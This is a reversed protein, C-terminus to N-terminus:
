RRETSDWSALWLKEGAPATVAVGSALTLDLNGGEETQYVNFNKTTGDNQSIGSIQTTPAAVTFNNDDDLRIHTLADAKTSILSADHTGGSYTLTPTATITSTLFGQAVGGGATTTLKVCFGVDNNTADANTFQVAASTAAAPESSGAVIGLNGGTVVLNVTLPNASDWDRNLRVIGCQKVNTGLQHQYLTKRDATIYVDQGGSWSGTAQGAGSNADVDAAAGFYVKIANIDADVIEVDQTLTSIAPEPISVTFGPANWATPVDIESYIRSQEGDNNTKSALDLTFVMKMPSTNAPLTYSPGSANFTVGTTSEAAVFGIRSSPLFTDDQDAFYLEETFPNALEAGTFTIEYKGQVYTQSSDGGAETIPTITRGTMTMNDDSKITVSITRKALIKFPKGGVTAVLGGTWVRLPGIVLDFTEDGELLNDDNIGFYLTNADKANGAGTARNFNLVLGTSTAVTAGPFGKVNSMETLDTLGDVGATTILGCRGGFLRDRDARKFREYYFGFPQYRRAPKRDQTSLDGSPM